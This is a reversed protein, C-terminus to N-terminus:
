QPPEGTGNFLDTYKKGYKLTMYNHYRQIKRTNYLFYILYYDIIWGLNFLFKKM